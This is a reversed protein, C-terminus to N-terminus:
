KKPKNFSRVLQWLSIGLALLPLLVTLLPFRWGIRKDLAMGGWVALGLMVLWQMGLGMYRMVSSYKQPNDM